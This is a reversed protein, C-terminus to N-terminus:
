DSPIVEVTTTETVVVTQEEGVIITVEEEAFAMTSERVPDTVTIPTAGSREIPLSEEKKPSVTRPDNM